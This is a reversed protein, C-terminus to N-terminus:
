QLVLRKSVNFQLVQNFTRHAGIDVIASLTAGAERIWVVGEGNAFEEVHVDRRWTEYTKGDATRPSRVLVPFKDLSAGAWIVWAVDRGTVVKAVVRGKLITAAICRRGDVIATGNDGVDLIVRVCLPFVRDNALSMTLNCFGSGARKPDLSGLHITIDVELNAALVNNVNNVVRDVFETSCAFNSGPATHSAITVDLALGYLPPNIM